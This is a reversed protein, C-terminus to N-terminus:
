MQIFDLKDAYKLLIKELLEPTDHFSMGVVKIKGERKKKAVFDFAGYKCCKEYVNSGM